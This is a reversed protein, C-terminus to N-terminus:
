QERIEALDADTAARADPAMVLALAIAGPALALKHM